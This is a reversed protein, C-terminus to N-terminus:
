WSVEILYEGDVFLEHGDNAMAIMVTRIGPWRGGNLWADMERKDYEDYDGKEVNYTHQTDNTWEEEATLSLDNLGYHAKIIAELEFKDIVFYLERNISVAAMDEVARRVVALEDDFARIQELAESTTLDEEYGEYGEETSIWVWPPVPMRWTKESM